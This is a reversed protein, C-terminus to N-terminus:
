KGEDNEEPESEKDLIAKIKELSKEIKTINKNIEDFNLSEKINAFTDEDVPSLDEFHELFDNINTLTEKLDSGVLNSHQEKLEGLEKNISSFEDLDIEENFCSKIDEVMDEINEVEKSLRNIDNQKMKNKGGFM